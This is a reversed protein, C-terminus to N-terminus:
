NLVFGTRAVTAEPSGLGKGGNVRWHRWSAMSVHCRDASLCSMMALASLVPDQVWTEVKKAQQSQSGVASWLPKMDTVIRLVWGTHLFPGLM